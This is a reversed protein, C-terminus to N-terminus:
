DMIIKTLVASVQNAANKTTHDALHAYRETTRTQTHGLLKGILQLSMGQEVCVSAYSHRLDHIRVDSLGAQDRVRVWPKRANILPRGAIKGAIIYPNNEEKPINALIEIADNSLQIIKKGTKSDPLRLVQVNYDVWEWKAHMIERLRAGTLILLRILAIFHPTESRNYESEQLVESLKMFENPTLFRERVIEPYKDINSVPNSHLPRIGWKEAMNFMKSFLALLKNAYSPKNKMAIHIRAIDERSIVTILLKGIKPKIVNTILRNDSEISSKKKYIEAHEQIYRDCLDSMTPANLLIERTAAPDQGIEVEYEWQKAIKRAQECTIRGHIGISPKRQKRNPGLYKFLYSKKGKPTVKIGFGTIKDDWYIRDKEEPQLSDVFNKIINPM